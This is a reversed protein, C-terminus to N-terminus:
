DGGRKGVSLSGWGERFHLIIARRAKGTGADIRIRGEAAAYTGPQYRRTKALAMAKWVPTPDQFHWTTNPSIGHGETEDRKFM